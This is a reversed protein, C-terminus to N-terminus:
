REPFMGVSVNMFARTYDVVLRARNPARSAQCGIRHQLDVATIWAFRCQCVGVALILIAIM